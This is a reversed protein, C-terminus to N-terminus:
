DSFREMVKGQPPLPLGLLRFVSPAAAAGLSAAIAGPVKALQWGVVGAVILALTHVVRFLKEDAGAVLLTIGRLLVTTGGLAAVAFLVITFISAIAALASAQVLQAQVMREQLTLPQRPQAGAPDQVRTATAPTPASAPLPQALSISSLLMLTLFLVRM